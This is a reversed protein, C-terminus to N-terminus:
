SLALENTKLRTPGHPEAETGEKKTRGPLAAYKKVANRLRNCPVVMAGRRENAYGLVKSEIMQIIDQLQGMAM